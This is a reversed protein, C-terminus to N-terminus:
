KITDEEGMSGIEVGYEREQVRKYIKRGDKVFEMLHNILKQAEATDDMFGSNIWPICVSLRELQKSKEAVDEIISSYSMADDSYRYRRAQLKKCTDLDIRIIKTAKKKRCKRLDPKGDPYLKKIREEKAEKMIQKYEQDQRELDRDVDTKEIKTEVSTNERQSEIAPNVVTEHLSKEMEYQLKESDYDKLSGHEVPNNKMFERLFEDDAKRLAEKEELTLPTKKKISESEYKM